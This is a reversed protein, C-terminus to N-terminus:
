PLVEFAMTQIEDKGLFVRAHWTGYMRAATITTGSVPMSFEALQHHYRDETLRTEQRNFVHGEPATFEVVLDTPDVGEVAVSVKVERLEEATTMGDPELTLKPTVLLKVKPPQPDDVVAQPPPPRTDVPPDGVIVELDPDAKVLNTNEEISLAPKEKCGAMLLLGAVVILRM